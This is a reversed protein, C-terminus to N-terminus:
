RALRKLAKAHKRDIGEVIAKLKEHHEDNAITPSVILSHGSTSVELPTEPGIELLDLVPQEIVIAWNEGHKALKKIM